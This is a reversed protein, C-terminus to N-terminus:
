GQKTFDRERETEKKKKIYLTVKFKSALSHCGSTRCSGPEEALARQTVQSHM